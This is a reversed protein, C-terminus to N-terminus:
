PSRVVFLAAEFRDRLMELRIGDRVLDPALQDPDVITAEDGSGPRRSGAVRAAVDVVGLDLFTVTRQELADAVARAVDPLRRGGALGELAARAEAPLRGDRADLMDLVARAEATLDVGDRANVRDLAAVAEDYRAQEGPTLGTAHFVLEGGPPPADVGDSLVLRVPAEEDEPLLRHFGVQRALSPRDVVFPIGEDALRAMIAPAFTYSAYSVSHDVLVPRESEGVADVAASVLADSTVQWREREPVGGNDSAPLTGVGAVLCVAALVALVPRSRAVSRVRGPGLRVAALAITVWVWLSLPWLWRVYTWGGVGYAPARMITVFALALGALATTAAAAVVGDSRRRGAVASAVLAVVVLGLSATALPSRADAPVSTELPLPSGFSPPLWLPPQAVLGSVSRIAERASPTQPGDAGSATVLNALNGDEGFVQQGLPQLWCLVAVVATAAGWRVAR